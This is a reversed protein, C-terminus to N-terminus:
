ERLKAVQRLIRGRSSKLVPPGVQSKALSKAPSKTPSKLGPSDLLPLEQIILLAQEKERTNQAIQWETLPRKRAKLAVGKAKERQKETGIFIPFNMMVTVEDQLAKVRGWAARVELTKEDLVRGEGSDWGGKKHNKQNAKAAQAQHVVDFDRQLTAIKAFSSKAAKTLKELKKRHDFLEPHDELNLRNFVTDLDDQIKELETVNKPTKTPLIAGSADPPTQLRDVAKEARSVRAADEARLKVLIEERRELNTIGAKDFSHTVNDFSFALEFAKAIVQLFEIKDIAFETYQFECLERILNKYFTSLPGFLGIDAPQLLHTSHPPLCLLIILHTVCFQIVKTSIHSAHGDLILLRYKGKLRKRSEPEFLRVFWELGIENDTWGNPSMAIGSGPALYKLWDLKMKVGKFIVWLPLKGGDASACAILSVWERDGNQTM